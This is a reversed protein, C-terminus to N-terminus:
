LRDAPEAERQGLGDREVREDETQDREEELGLPASRELPRMAVLRTTSSGPRARARASSRSAAGTRASATRATWPPAGASRRPARSARSPSARSSRRRGSAARPLMCAAEPTACGG